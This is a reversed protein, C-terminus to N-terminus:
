PFLSPIGTPLLFLLSFFIDKFVLHNVFHHVEM